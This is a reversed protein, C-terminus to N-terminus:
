PLAPPPRAPERRAEFEIRGFTGFDAVYRGPALPVARGLAGTFFLQGANMAERGASLSNLLRALAQMPGGPLEDGRGWSLQRGALALSVRLAAPNGEPKRLTERATGTVILFRLV